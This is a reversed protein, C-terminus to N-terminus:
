RLVLKTGILLLDPDGTGIRERNLEWLRHVERAVRAVTADRGLIASAIVWLSEGEFVTHPRDGRRAARGVPAAATPAAAVASSAPAVAAPARTTATSASGDGEGTRSTRKRPGGTRQADQRASGSVAPTPTSPEPTAAPAADAGAVVTPATAESTPPVVTTTSATAPALAPPSPALAQSRAPDSGDDTDVVPDDPDATSSQEMPTAGVGDADPSSPTAPMAPAADPLDTTDGGPDFDTDDTDDAGPGNSQTVPATGDKQQDQEAAVAAAPPAAASVALVGAALMAQTRLSVLREDGVSGTLRTQRCIPCSPHFPLRDHSDVDQLHTALSRM